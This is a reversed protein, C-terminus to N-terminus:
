KSRLRYQGTRINGAVLRVGAAILVIMAVANLWPPSPLQQGWWALAFVAIASVVALIMRAALKTRTTM